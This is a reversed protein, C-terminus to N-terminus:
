SRASDVAASSLRVHFMTGDDVTSTVSVSGAHAEAIAQVIFLGLGVSRDLAASASGRVMPAFISGILEPPIPRGSNHVKIHAHHADVSTTVTVDQAANGYAMANGVLNGLLQVVRDPDIFCEGGGVPVLKLSGGPFALRLEDAARAVLAHLDTHKRNMTLGAGVRALTFDLLEDTLRRARETSTVIREVLSRQKTSLESRNLMSSGMLVAALPNRLDHSVIGVMQEALLARDEALERRKTEETIDSLVGVFQSLCGEDDAIAQGSATVIRETGHPQQVRFTWHHVRGAGLLAADFCDSENARDAAVISQVFTDHDVPGAAPQGLLIAVADEYQRRGTALDLSWMYLKGVRMAQRLQSQMAGLRRQAERESQVLELARTRANLLEREYKNRDEAVTISLEDYSGDPQHRRVANILVPVVHGDRHRIDFKVEAASGQMALMPMWHTQYFIRGGMSLLEQLRTGVLQEATMGLADCLTRNVKMLTGRVTTVALGCPFEDFLQEATPLAPLSESVDSDSARSFSM